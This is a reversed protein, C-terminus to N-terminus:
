ALIKAVQGGLKYNQSSFTKDIVLDDDNITIATIATVENREWGAIPCNGEIGFILTGFTVLGSAGAVGLLESGAVELESEDDGARRSSVTRPTGIEPAFNIKELLGSPEFGFVVKVEASFM